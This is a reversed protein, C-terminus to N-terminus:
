ERGTGFMRAADSAYRRRDMEAISERARAETTRRTESGQAYYAFLNEPRRELADKLVFMVIRMDRPGTKWIWGAFRFLESRTQSDFQVVAKHVANNDFKLDDIRSSGLVDTVLSRVRVINDIRDSDILKGTALDAAEGITRTQDDSLRSHSPTIPPLRLSSSSPPLVWGDGAAIGPDGASDGSAIGAGIVPDGTGPGPDAVRPKRVRAKRQKLEGLIGGSPTESAANFGFELQADRRRRRGVKSYGPASADSTSVAQHELHLRKQVLNGGRRKFCPLIESRVRDWCHEAGAIRAIVKEDDPLIGPASSMWMNFILRIYAGLAELSMRMVHEDTMFDQVYLRLFPRRSGAM